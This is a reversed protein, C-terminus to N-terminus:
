VPRALHDKRALLVPTVLLELTVLPVLTETVVLLALMVRNLFAWCTVVM